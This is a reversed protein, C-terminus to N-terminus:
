RSSTSSCAMADAGLICVQSRLPIVVARHWESEVTICHLNPFHFFRRCSNWPVIHCLLVQTLKTRLPVTTSIRNVAMRLSRSSCSLLVAGFIYLSMCFNQIDSPQGRGRFCGCGPWLCAYTFCRKSTWGRLCYPQVITLSCQKWEIILHCKRANLRLPFFGQIAM